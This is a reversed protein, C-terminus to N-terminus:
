LKSPRVGSRPRTRPEETYVIETRNPNVASPRVGSRPRPKDENSGSNSSSSPPRGCNDGTCGSGPGGKDDEEIMTTIDSLMISIQDIMENIENITVSKVKMPNRM